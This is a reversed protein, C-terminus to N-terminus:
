DFKSKGTMFIESFTKKDKIISGKDL